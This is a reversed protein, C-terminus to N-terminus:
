RPDDPRGAPSLREAVAVVLPRTVVAALIGLATGGVVDLVHHQGDRVRGASMAVSLGAALVGAAPWELVTATAFAAGTTAHGSPFSPSTRHAGDPRPRDVVPKVVFRTTTSGTVAAVAAAAAARRGRPGTAALATAVVAWTPLGNGRAIPLHTRGDGTAVRRSLSRDLRVADRWLEVPGREDLPSV